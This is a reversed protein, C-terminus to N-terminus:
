ETECRNARQCNECDTPITQQGNEQVLIYVTHSCPSEMIKNVALEEPWLATGSMATTLLYKRLLQTSSCHIFSHHILLVYMNFLDKGYQTHVWDLSEPNLSHCTVQGQGWKGLKYITIFITIIITIVKHWGLPHNCPDFHKYICLRACLLYEVLILEQILNPNWNRGCIQHECIFLFMQYFICKTKELNWKKNIFFM